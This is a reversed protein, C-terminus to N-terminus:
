SKLSLKCLRTGEEAIEGERQAPDDRGARRGTEVLTPTLPALLRGARMETMIGQRVVQRRQLSERKIEKGCFVAVLKLLLVELLSEGLEWSSTAAGKSSLLDFVGRVALPVLRDLVQREASSSSAAGCPLVETGM